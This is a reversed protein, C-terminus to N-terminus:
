WGVATPLPLTHLMALHPDKAWSVSNPDLDRLSFADVTTGVDKYNLTVTWATTAACGTSSFTAVDHREECNPTGIECDGNTDKRQGAYQYGNDAVFNHM